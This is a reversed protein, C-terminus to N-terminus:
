LYDPYLTHLNDPGSVETEDGLVPDGLVNCYFRDQWQVFMGLPHNNLIMTQSLINEINLTALERINIVFSGDGDFDIVQKEPCAATAALATPYDFDMAGLGLSTLYRRAKNCPYIQASRM